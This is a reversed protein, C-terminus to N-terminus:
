NGSLLFVAAACAAGAAAGAGLGLRVCCHCGAAGQLPVPMVWAWVAGGSGLVCAGLACLLPVRCLCLCGLELFCEPLEKKVPVAVAGQLPVLM